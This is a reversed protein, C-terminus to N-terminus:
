QLQSRSSTLAGVAERVELRWQTLESDLQEFRYNRALGLLDTRLGASRGRYTGNESLKSEVDNALARADAVAAVAAELAIDMRELSTVLAPQLQAVLEVDAALASRRRADGPTALSTIVTCAM